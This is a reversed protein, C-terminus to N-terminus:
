VLRAARQCGRGGWVKVADRQRGCRVGFVGLKGDDVQRYGAVRSEKQRDVVPRQPAVVRLDVGARNTREHGGFALDAATDLAAEPVAARRQELAKRIAVGQLLRGVAVDDGVARAPLEDVQVVREAAVRKAKVADLALLAKAAAVIRVHTILVAHVGIGNVTTPKATHLSYQM